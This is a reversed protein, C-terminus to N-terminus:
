EAREEGRRVGLLDPLLQLFGADIVRADGLQLSRDILALRLQLRQLCENEGAASGLRGGEMNSAGHAPTGLAADYRDGGLDINRLDHDDVEIAEGVKEEDERAHRVPPRPRPLYRPSSSSSHPFLISCISEVGAAGISKRVGREENRM